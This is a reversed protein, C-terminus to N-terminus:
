VFTVLKFPVGAIAIEVFKTTDVVNVAAHSQGLSWLGAGTGPDNTRITGNLAIGAASSITGVKDVSFQRINNVRLDLLFSAAASATHTVNALILTPTGTTNWSQTIDLVGRSGAVTQPVGQFNFYNNGVSLTPLIASFILPVTGTFQTIGSGNWLTQAGNTGGITKIASILLGAGQADTMNFTSPFLSAISGQITATSSRLTLQTSGGLALDTLVIGKQGNTEIFRDSLLQSTTPAGNDNGLVVFGAADQSLGNRAGQFSQAAPSLPPSGYTIGGFGSSM